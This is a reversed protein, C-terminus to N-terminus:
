RGTRTVQGRDCRLLWEGLECFSVGAEPGVAEAGASPSVDQTLESRSHPLTMGDKQMHYVCDRWCWQSLFSSEWRVAKAGQDFM